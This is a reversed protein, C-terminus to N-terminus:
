SASAHLVDRPKSSTCNLTLWTNKGSPVAFEVGARTFFSSLCARGFFKLSGLRMGTPVDRLAGNRDGSERYKGDLTSRMLAKGQSTWLWAPAGKKQCPAVADMM